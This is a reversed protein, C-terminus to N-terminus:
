LVKSEANQRTKMTKIIIVTKHIYKYMYHLVCIMLKNVVVIALRELCFVFNKKKSLAYPVSVNLPDYNM